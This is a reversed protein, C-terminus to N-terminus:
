FRYGVSTGGWPVFSRSRDRGPDDSYVNTISPTFGLRFFFRKDPKQYRYGIFGTALVYNYREERIKVGNVDFYTTKGNALVIGLQAEFHHKGTGFVKG